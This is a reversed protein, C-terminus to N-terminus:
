AEETALTVESAPRAVGQRGEFRSTRVRSSGSITDSSRLASGGTRIGIQDPRVVAPGDRETEPEADQPDRDVVSRKGESLEELADSGVAFRRRRDAETSTGADFHFVVVALFKPGNPNAPLATSNEAIKLSEICLRRAAATGSNADRGCADAACESAIAGVALAPNLQRLGMEDQACRPEFASLASSSLESLGQATHKM